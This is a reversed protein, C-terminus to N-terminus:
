RPGPNTATERRLAEYPERLNEDQAAMVGLRRMHEALPGSRQDALTRQRARIDLYRVMWRAYEPRSMMYAVGFGSAASGLGATLVDVAGSAVAGGAAMVSGVNLSNTGSRSNNVLAEVNAMRNTVRVLDDLAARQPGNFLLGRAEPAMNQWRTVFSAVSFNAQQTIGRASGVPTGLERIVGSAVQDMEEPRLTRRLTRLSEINGRGRNLAASTINRALAEANNAGFMREVTELREMSLRTFRDAQRFLRISREFGNAREFNGATRYRDANREMLGIMDRTLASQLRELDSSKLVNRETDPMGSALRRVESRIDRITQLNATWRPNDIATLVRGLLGGTVPMLEGAANAGTQQTMRANRGVIDRLVARAESPAAMVRPDDAVARGARMDEPIERWAREYLVAQKSKLSTDRAPAHVAQSIQADTLNRAADDLVDGPRADKFRTLGRDAVQGVQQSTRADGYGAAVEDAARATQTIGTEIARRAPTGIVPTESLQKAVSATPGSNYAFGPVDVRLRGAAAADEAATTARLTAQETRATVTPRRAVGGLTNLAPIGAAVEGAAGLTWLLDPNANAFDQEGRAIASGVSPSAAGVIDGLGYQGRTLMRVPASGAFAAADAVREVGGRKNQWNRLTENRAMVDYDTPAVGEPTPVAEQLNRRSLERAVPADPAIGVSM